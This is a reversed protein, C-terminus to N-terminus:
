IRTSTSIGYNCLDMWINPFIGKIGSPRCRRDFLQLRLQHRRRNHGCRTQGDVLAYSEERSLNQCKHGCWRTARKERAPIEVVTDDVFGGLDGERRTQAWEFECICKDEDSIVELQRRQYTQKAKTRKRKQQAMKNGM